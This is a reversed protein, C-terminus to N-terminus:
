QWHGGWAAARGGTFCGLDLATQGKLFQPFDFKFYSEFSHHRSEDQYACDSSKFMIAERERENGETFTKHRFVQNAHYDDARLRRECAKMWKKIIARKIGRAM